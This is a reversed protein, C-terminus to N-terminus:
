IKSWKMVNLVPSISIVPSQGYLLQQKEMCAISGSPKGKWWNLLSMNLGLYITSITLLQIFQQKIFLSLGHTDWPWINHTSFRSNSPCVYGCSICTPNYFINKILSESFTWVLYWYLYLYRIWYVLFYVYNVSLLLFM